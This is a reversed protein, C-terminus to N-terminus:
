LTVWGPATSGLNPPLGRSWFECGVGSRRAEADALLTDALATSSSAYPFCGGRGLPFELLYLLREGACRVQWPSSGRGAPPCM